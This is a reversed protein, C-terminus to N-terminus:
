GRYLQARLRREIAIVLTGAQAHAHALFRTGAASADDPPVLDTTLGADGLARSTAPGVAAWRCPAAALDDGTRAAAAVLAAVANVSTVVTWAYAGRALARVADDLPAVDDAPAREIVPAVVVDHGDDRLRAALGAAREPARALLVSRPAARDAGRAPAHGAARDAPTSSTGRTV